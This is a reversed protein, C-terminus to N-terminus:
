TQPVTKKMAERLYNGKQDLTAFRKIYYNQTVQYDEHGLLETIIRPPIGVAALRSAFTKRLKHPSRYDIGCSECTNKLKKRIKEARIRSGHYSLIYEGDPNIRRIRDLTEQMEPFVPFM